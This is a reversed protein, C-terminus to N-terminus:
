QQNYEYKNKIRVLKKNPINKANVHAFVLNVWQEAIADIMVQKDKHKYNDQQM